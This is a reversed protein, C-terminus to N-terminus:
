IFLPSVFFHAVIDITRSCFIRTRIKNATVPKAKISFPIKFNVIRDGTFKVVVLACIFEIALYYYGEARFALKRTYSMGIIDVAYPVFFGYRQGLVIRALLDDKM